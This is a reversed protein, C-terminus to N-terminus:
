LLTDLFFAFRIICDWAGRLFLSLFGVVQMTLLARGSVIQLVSRADGM